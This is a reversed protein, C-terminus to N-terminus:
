FPNPNLQYAFLNNTPRYDLVAQLVLDLYYYQDSFYISSSRRNISDIHLGLLILFPFIYVIFYFCLIETMNMLCYDRTMM